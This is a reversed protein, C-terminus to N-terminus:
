TGSSDDHLQSPLDMTEHLLRLIIAVDGEIRFAILHRPQRVDAPSGRAHRLHYLHLGAGLEPRLAAAKAMGTAINALAQRIVAQYRDRAPGGFNDGSWALAAAIDRRAPGTIRLKM